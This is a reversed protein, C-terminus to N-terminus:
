SEARPQPQDRWTDVHLRRNLTEIIKQLSDRIERDTDRLNTEINMIRRNTSSLAIDMREALDEINAKVEAMTREDERRIRELRAIRDAHNTNRARWYARVSAGFAAIGAVWKGAETWYAQDAM